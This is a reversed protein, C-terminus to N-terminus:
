DATSASEVATDAFMLQGSLAILGLGVKAVVDIYSVVMTTTEINMVGFGAPALLWIVPYVLWLVVLFARLKRFTAITMDDKTQAADDFDYYAYYVVAGFAVSGLIFAPWKFPPVLVAGAFGFIITAAMLALSKYLTRMAVGALLGLYLIHLPTTLLWDLYRVPFITNGELTTMEGIGLAMLGYAVFAIFPVAVLTSYRRYNEHPILRYGYALVITGLAMGVTGLAFWTSIDVM